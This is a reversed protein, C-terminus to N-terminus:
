RADVQPCKISLQPKNSKLRANAKGRNHRSAHGVSCSFFEAPKSQGLPACPNSPRGACFCERIVNDAVVVSMRNDNAETGEKAPWVFHKPPLAKRVPKRKTRKGVKLQQMDFVLSAAVSANAPGAYHPRDCYTGIVKPKGFFETAVIKVCQVTM